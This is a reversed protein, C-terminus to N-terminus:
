RKVSCEIWIDHLVDGFDDEDAHVVRAARLHRRSRDQRQVDMRSRFPPAQGSRLSPAEREALRPLRLGVRMKVVAPM